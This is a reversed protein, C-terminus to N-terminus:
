RPDITFMTGFKYVEGSRYIDITQNEKFIDPLVDKFNNKITTYEATTSAVREFTYAQPAEVQSKLAEANRKTRNAVQDETTAEDIDVIETVDNNEKSELTVM